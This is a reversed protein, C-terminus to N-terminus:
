GFAWGKDCWEDTDWFVPLLNEKVFIEEAWNKEDWFDTDFLLPKPDPFVTVVEGSMAHSLFKYNNCFTSLFIKMVELKSRENKYQNILDELKDILEYDLGRSLFDVNVTFHYPKGGYEFWESLDGELGLMQFVKRVAFKTGKHKHLSVANKILERKESETKTQLWGENGTVHFQEALHPLASVSVNDILYILLKEVELEQFRSFLDDFTQSSIDNLPSLNNM